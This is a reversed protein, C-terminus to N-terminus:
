PWNWPIPVRFIDLSILCFNNSIQETQKVEFNVYGFGKGMGNTRDRVVRVDSIKGCEGFHLWLAEDTVNFPLNGVFIGLGLQKRINSESLLSIAIHREQFECGTVSLAEIASEANEFRVFASISDRDPHFEQKIVAVKKPM